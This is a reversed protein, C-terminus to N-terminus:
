RNEEQAGEVWFSRVRDKGSACHLDTERFWVSIVQSGWRGADEITASVHLGPHCGTDATSFVPAEYWCGDVYGPGKMVPQRRSRYGRYWVHGSRTVTKEYGRAYCNGMATPDLCTNDLRVGTLDVDQLFVDRLDAGRLDAGRLNAGSLDSCCLYAGRLDAGQMNSGSLRAALLDAGSLDTDSLNADCLEARSMTAGRLDAGSLDAGHLDAWQLDVGRLDSRRFNRQGLQYAELLQKAEM